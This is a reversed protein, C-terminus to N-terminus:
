PHLYTHVATYLEAYYEVYLVCVFSRNILSKVQSVNNGGESREERLIENRNSLQALIGSLIENRKNAIMDEEQQHKLAVSVDPSNRKVNDTVVVVDDTSSRKRMDFDVGGVDRAHQLSESRILSHWKSRHASAVRNEIKLPDANTNMNYVDEFTKPNWELQQEWAKGVTCHLATCSDVFATYCIYVYICICM